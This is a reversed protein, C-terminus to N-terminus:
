WFAFFEVLQLEGSAINFTGPDTAVLEMKLPPPPNETPAPYGGTQGEPTPQIVQPVPYGSVQDELAPVEYEPAPYGSETTSEVEKQNSEPNTSDEDSVVPIVPETNTPTETATREQPQSGQTEITPTPESPNGSSCASLVILGLFCIGIALYLTSPWFRNRMM